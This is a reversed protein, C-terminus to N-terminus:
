SGAAPEPTELLDQRALPTISGGGQWALLLLRGTGSSVVPSAVIESRDLSYRPTRSRHDAAQEREHGKNEIGM